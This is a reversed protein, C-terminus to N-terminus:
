LRRQTPACHAEPSRGSWSGPSAEIHRRRYSANTRCMSSGRSHCSGRSPFSPRKSCAISCHVPTYRTSERSKGCRGHGEIDDMAPESQKGESRRLDRRRRSDECRHARTRRTARGGKARERSRRKPGGDRRPPGLREGTRGPRPPVWTATARAPLLRPSSDGRASVWRISSQSRKECLMTATTM